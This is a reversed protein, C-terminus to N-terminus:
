VGGLALFLNDYGDVDPILFFHGKILNEGEEFVTDILLATDGVHGYYTLPVSLIAGAMDIALAPVSPKLLMKTLSSIASLYSGALINGIEALASREIPDFECFLDRKKEGFIIDLLNLTNRYPIIFLINGDIGGMFRLYIGAVMNEPGGVVDIIEDFSMINVEPVRMTIKKNILQALATAANGAGINGVEKLIDIHTPSINKQIGAM